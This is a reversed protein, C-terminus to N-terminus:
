RGLEVVVADTSEGDIWLYRNEASLWEVSGEARKRIAKFAVMSAADIEVEITEGARVPGLAKAPDWGGLARRSGVM